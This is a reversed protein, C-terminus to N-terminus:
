SCGVWEIEVMENVVVLYSVMKNMRQLEDIGVLGYIM